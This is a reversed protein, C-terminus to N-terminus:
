SRRTFPMGSYSVARMEVAAEVRLFGCTRLLHKRSPDVGGGPNALTLKKFSSFISLDTAIFRFNVGEAAIRISSHRQWVLGEFKVDGRNYRAHDRLDTNVIVLLGGPKLVRWAERFVTGLFRLYLRKDLTKGDPHNTFPPSGIVLQASEDSLEAM